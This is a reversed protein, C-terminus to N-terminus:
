RAGGAGYSDLAEPAAPRALHGVRLRSCGSALVSHGRVSADGCGEVCEM